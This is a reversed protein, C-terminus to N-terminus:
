EVKEGKELKQLYEELTKIRERYVKITTEIIAKWEDKKLFIDTPPLYVKGVIAWRMGRIEDVAKIVKSAAPDELLKSRIVEDVSAIRDTLKNLAELETRYPPSDDEDFPYRYVTAMYMRGRRKEAELIKEWVKAYMKEKDSM